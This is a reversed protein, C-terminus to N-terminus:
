YRGVPPVVCGALVRTFVWQEWKSLPAPPCWLSVYISTRGCSFLPLLISAGCMLSISEYVSVTRMKVFPRPSVVSICLYLDSWLLIRTVSGPCWVDLYYERLCKSNEKQCPPPAGCLYMSLPGAVPSYRYCFRPVLCWALVRTFLGLEEWKSRPPPLPPVVSICLYLDSGHLIGIISCPCRRSACVSTQVWFFVSLIDLFSQNEAFLTETKDLSKM